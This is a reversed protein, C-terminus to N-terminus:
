QRVQLGGDADQSIRLVLYELPAAPAVGVEAILRGLAQSQPTNLADDCRVFYSEAETAGAFAGQRYLAGLFQSLTHFLKARLGPTNPEFVLFQAQRQLSLAIMTMLRRVTLQRYAPDTALTRAASLRFGDREARFVNVGLLHLRDHVAATVADAATVATGALENAPGWPLGRRVERAAIIGAAFSSPPVFVAPLEPRQGPVGLWPHYCALYSSDFGSRWRAIQDPSLRQPVDLLAVFRSRLVAVDVLRRQRGVLEAFDDPDRPDLQWMSTSVAPQLYSIAPEAPQCPQFCGTPRPQDPPDAPPVPQQWRWGLDPVCLLGIQDCRGILDVGRHDREDLPDAGAAEDDFFSREDIDAFRDRGTGPVLGLSWGALLGDAPPIPQDWGSGTAVLLSETPLSRDPPRSRPPLIRPPYRPHDPHLGLGALQESRPMAPDSDVISLTGTIVAIERAAPDAPLPPDLVAVRLLGGARVPRVDLERVWHLSGAPAKASGRVRLLSGVPLDLGTGLELEGARLEDSAPRVPRSFTTSARYDLRIALRQGWAGEDAAVLVATSGDPLPLGFRATAAPDAAVPAVRVVWATVGGQAFFAQVAYPLLGPCPQGAPDAIGGFYNVFETWSTVPQPTNVPGRLCVGVFGTADLRIPRLGDDTSRPPVQYVGPAGLRLGPATM